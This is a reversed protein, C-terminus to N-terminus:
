APAPEEEAPKDAEPEEAKGEEEAAEETAEEAAEAAEEETKERESADPGSETATEEIIEDQHEVFSGRGVNHSRHTEVLLPTFREVKLPEDRPAEEEAPEPSAALEPAKQTRARSPKAM